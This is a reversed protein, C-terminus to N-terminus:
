MKALFSDRSQSVPTTKTFDTEFSFIFHLNEFIFLTENPSDPLIGMFGKNTYIAFPQSRMSSTSIAMHYNGTSIGQDFWLITDCFSYANEPDVGKFSWVKSFAGPLVTLTDFDGANPILCDPESSHSANSKLQAQINAYPTGDKLETFNIVKTPKEYFAYFVNPDTIVTFSFANSALLLVISLILVAKKL